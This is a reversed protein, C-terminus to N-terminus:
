RKWMWARSLSAVAGFTVYTSARIKAETRAWIHEPGAGRISTGMGVSM